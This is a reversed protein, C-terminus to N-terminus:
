GETSVIIGPQSQMPTTHASNQPGVSIQPTIQPAFFAAPTIPAWAQYPVFRINRRSLDEATATSAAPAVPSAAPRHRWAYWAYGLIIIAVFAVIVKVFTMYIFKWYHKFMRVNYRFHSLQTYNADVSTPLKYGLKEILTDANTNAPFHVVCPWSDTPLYHLVGDKTLELDKSHAEVNYENRGIWLPHGGYLTLFLDNHEDILIEQGVLQKNESLYRALLEQDNERDSFGEGYRFLIQLLDKFYAAYGIVGGINLYSNGVPRFVRRIFYNVIWNDHVGDQSIILQAGSAYFKKLIVQANQLLLVDFADVFLVVDDPPLTEVYALMKQLRFAFGTLKEGWGLVELNVGLKATSQVLLPMYRELHTAVAAVHLVPGVTEAVQAGNELSDAASESVDAAKVSQQQSLSQEPLAQQSEM